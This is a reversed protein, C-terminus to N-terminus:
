GRSRTERETWVIQRPSAEEFSGPTFDGDRRTVRLGARACLEDFEPPDYLRVDERWSRESGDPRRLTVEKVVRSGGAALRRRELLVLGDRETESEPVLSARIRAPNMLDFVASGRAKLVRAVEALVGANAGDDLYGFSSFLMLVAGFSGDEFPLARADARALRGSLRESGPLSRAHRLLELSLDVGVATRGSERLALTHRGFGCCLDLLPDALDATLLHAVERRAADLDRHPYVRLYEAGFAEEFWPRERGASM